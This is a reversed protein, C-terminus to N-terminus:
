ACFRLGVANAALLNQLQGGSRIEGKEAVDLSKEIDSLEAKLKELTKGHAAIDKSSRLNYKALYSLGALEDLQDATPMRIKNLEVFRAGDQLIKEEQEIKKILSDRSKKIRDSKEAASNVVNRFNEDSHINNDCLYTLLEANRRFEGYTVNHSKDPKRYVMIQLERLCMAYERQVGQYSAVASM